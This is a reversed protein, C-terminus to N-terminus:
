GGFEEVNVYIKQKQTTFGTFIGKDIICDEYDRGHSIKIYFDDICKNHTPDIGYWYGNDYVEIWAHTVGEGIMMGVVYRSPINFKRCLAILIHAYDQCVGEGLKMADKATTNIDTVGSTYKFNDYLLNMLFIARELNTGKFPMAKLYLEEMSSDFETYKSAYKYIPNINDKIFNSRDIWAIGSVTYSFNNHPANCHGVYMINGFGDSTKNLAEIPNVDFKLSYIKQYYDSKPICRLSFFHEKVEDEFTLSMTYTFRLKKM